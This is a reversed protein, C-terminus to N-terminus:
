KPNTIVQIYVNTVGHKRDHIKGFAAYSLDIHRPGTYEMKDNIKVICSKNNKLNTVLVRTGLKFSNCAATLSDRHMKQGSATTNGHLDYWSANYKVPSSLTPVGEMIPDDKHDKNHTLKLNFSIFKLPHQNSVFFPIITILIILIKTKIM